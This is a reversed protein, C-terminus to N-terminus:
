GSPPSSIASGTTPVDAVTLGLLTLVEEAAQAVEPGHGLRVCQRGPLCLTVNGAPDMGLTAVEGTGAEVPYAVGGPQPEFGMAAQIREEFRMGTRIVCGREEPTLDEIPLSQREPDLCFARGYNEAASSLEPM